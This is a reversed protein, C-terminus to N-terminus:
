PRTSRSSKRDPHLWLMLPGGLLILLWFSPEPAEVADQFEDFELAQDAQLAQKEKRRLLERQASNELVIYSTMPNLIGTARARKLVSTRVENIRKPATLTERWVELNQLGCVYDSQAPLEAGPAIPHYANEDPHFIEPAEQGQFIVVGGSTPLLREEDGCRLRLVPIDPTPQLAEENWLVQLDPISLRLEDLSLEQPSQPSLIVIVPRTNMDSRNSVVAHTVARKTDFGGRFPLDALDSLRTEGAQIDLAQGSEFNAFTLTAKDQQQAALIRNITDAYTPFTDIAAKSVDIIFHLKRPRIVAPLHGAQESSIAMGSQQTDTTFVMARNLTGTEPLAIKLGGIQISSQQTAPYLLSLRCRRTENPAFPYIKLTLEDPSSYSLIGPDRRTTDRIMHYIWESTKRDFIQGPVTKDGVDLTFGSVLVGPPLKINTRFEAAEADGNLLELSITAETLVGRNTETIHVDELSVSRPAKRTNSWDTRANGASTFLMFLNDFRRTRAPYADPEIGFLVRNMHEIKHDPLVMGNFVLRNYYESLFPVYLGDKMDKLRQLAKRSMGYKIPARGQSYDPSYVADVAQMLAHKHYLARVTYLSPMITLMLLFMLLLRPRGYRASLEVGETYLRRSHIIFLLTPSLMLFGGGAVLIAPISLPLFPLFLLFFYLTFPYTACRTLWVPLATKSTAVFPLMVAIANLIALAYVTWDQLPCPFPIVYNLALGALPFILAALLALLFSQGIKLYIWLLIRIFALLMAATCAFLLLFTILEPFNVHTSLKYAISFGLYWLLPIVALTVASLGIDTRPRLATPAGALRTLAYFLAPTIFMFQSFILQPDSLMWFAVSNPILQADLYLFMWLYGAHATFFLAATWSRITQKRKRCWVWTFLALVLLTAEGCFVYIWAGMGRASLEGKVLLYASLNIGLLALQPLLMSWLLMIPKLAYEPLLTRLTKNM